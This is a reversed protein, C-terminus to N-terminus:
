APNPKATPALATLRTAEILADVASADGEIALPSVQDLPFAGVIRAKWNTATASVIADAPGPDPTKVITTEHPGVTATYTVPDADELRADTLMLRVTVPSPQSDLGRAHARMALVLADPSMDADMPFEPSSVAWLSLAANVAELQKGWNTLEYVDVRAPAPLSRRVVISRDELDRLRQSLIAPSIGMLDRQLEAFRKPGLILERVVILTWRDGILDLAHAAACGDNYSAYTRRSSMFDDYDVTCVAM